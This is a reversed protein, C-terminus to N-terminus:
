PENELALTGKVVELSLLEPFGVSMGANQELAWRKRPWIDKVRM